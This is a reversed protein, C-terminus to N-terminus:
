DFMGSLPINVKGGLSSDWLMRDEHRDCITVLTEPENKQLWEAQKLHEKLDDENGEHFRYPSIPCKVYLTYRM